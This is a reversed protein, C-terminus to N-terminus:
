EELYFYTGARKQEMDKVSLRKNIRPRYNSPDRRFTIELQQVCLLLSFVCQNLAARFLACLLCAVVPTRVCVRCADCARSSENLGGGVKLFTNMGTLLSQPSNATAVVGPDGEYVIVRDALYTAALPVYMSCCYLM